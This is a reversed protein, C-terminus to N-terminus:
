VTNDQTQLQESNFIYFWFSTKVHSFLPRLIHPLHLFLFLFSSFCAVTKEVIEDMVWLPWKGHLCECALAFSDRIRLPSLHPGITFLRNIQRQFAVPAQSKGNLPKPPRYNPSSIFTCARQNSLLSTNILLFQVLSRIINISTVEDLSPIPKPKKMPVLPSSSLRSYGNSSPQSVYASSYALLQQDPHVGARVM